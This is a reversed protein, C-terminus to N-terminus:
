REVLGAIAHEDTADCGHGNVTRGTEASLRAAAQQCRGASRSALVVASAARALGASGGTVLAVQGARSGGPRSAAADDNNGMWAHDCPLHPRWNHGPSA